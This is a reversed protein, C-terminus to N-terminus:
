VSRSCYSLLQLLLQLLLSREVAMGVNLSREFLGLVRVGKCLVSRSRIRQRQNNASSSASACRELRRWRGGSSAVARAFSSKCYFSKVLRFMTLVRYRNLIPPRCDTTGGMRRRDREDLLPPRHQAGHASRPRVLQEACRGVGAGEELVAVPRLRPRGVAARGRRRGAHEVHGVGAAGLQLRRELPQALPHGDVRRAHRAAAAALAEELEDAAM